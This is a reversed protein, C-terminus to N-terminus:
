ENEPPELGFPNTVLGAQFLFMDFAFDSESTRAPYINGENSFMLLTYTKDGVAEVRLWPESLEASDYRYRYASLGGLFDLAGDIETSDLTAAAAEDAFVLSAADQDARVWGDDTRTVRVVEPRAPPVMM